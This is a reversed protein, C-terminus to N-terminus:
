QKFYVVIWICNKKRKYGIIVVDMYVTLLKFLSVETIKDQLRFGEATVGLRSLSSWHFWGVYVSTQWDWVSWLVVPLTQARWIPFFPPNEKDPSLRTWLVLGKM